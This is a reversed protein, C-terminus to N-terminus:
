VEVEPEVVSAEVEVTVASWAPLLPESVAVQFALGIALVITVVWIANREALAEHIREREDKKMKAMIDLTDFVLVVLWVGTVALKVNIGWYPLSQFVVFPIMFCIIYVWGRWDVPYLGWGGYKRRKFWEPKGIM